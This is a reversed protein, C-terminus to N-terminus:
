GTLFACTYTKQTHTNWHEVNAMLTMLVSAGDAVFVLCVCVVQAVVAVIPSHTTTTHTRTCEDIAWGGFLHSITIVYKMRAHTNSYTVAVHAVVRTSDKCTMSFVFMRERVGFADSQRDSLLKM